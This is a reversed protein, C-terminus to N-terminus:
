GGREAELRAAEVLQVGQPVAGHGDGVRGAAEDVRNIVHVGKASTPSCQSRKKHTCAANQWHRLNANRPLRRPPLRAGLSRCGMARGQLPIRM